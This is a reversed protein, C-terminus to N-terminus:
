KGQGRVVGGTSGSGRAGTKIRAPQDVTAAPTGPEPLPITTASGEGDAGGGGDPGVTVDGILDDGDDDEDDFDSFPNGNAAAPTDLQLETGDGPVTFHQNHQQEMMVRMQEVQQQMARMADQMQQQSLGTGVDAASALHDGNPDDLVTWVRQNTAADYAEINPKNQEWVPDNEYAGYKVRLRMWEDVRDKRRHDINRAEPNGMWLVIAEYPVLIESQPPIKYTNSAFKGVFTKHTDRNLLRIIRFQQIPNPNQTIQVSSM